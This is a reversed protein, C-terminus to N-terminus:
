KQADKLHYWKQNKSFFFFVKGYLRMSKLSFFGGGTCDRVTEYKKFFFSSFRVGDTCNRVTEYKKFFIQEREYLRHKSSVWWGYLEM